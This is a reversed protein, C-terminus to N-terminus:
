QGVLKSAYWQLYTPVLPSWYSPDHVGPFVAWDHPINLSLLLQHYDRIATGWQNDADGDDM